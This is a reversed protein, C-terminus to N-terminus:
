LHKAFPSVKQVFPIYWARSSVPHELIWPIKRKELCTIIQFAARMCKNGIAISAKAKDNIQPGNGWPDPESRCVSANILSFSGCPPDVVFAWVQQKDVMQRVPFLVAPKTLDCESGKLLEWEQTFFGIARAQKSVVGCGACFEAFFKGKVRIPSSQRSGSPRLRYGRCSAVRNCDM